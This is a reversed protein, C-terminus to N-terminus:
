RHLCVRGTFILQQGIVVGLTFKQSVDHGSIYFNHDIHRLHLANKMVVQRRLQFPLDQWTVQHFYGEAPLVHLPYHYFM